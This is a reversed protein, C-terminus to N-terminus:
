PVRGKSEALYMEHTRRLNRARLCRAFGGDIHGQTAEFVDPVGSIVPYARVMSWRYQRPFDEVRLDSMACRRQQTPQAQSQAQADALEAQRAAALLRSRAEGMHVTGSGRLAEAIDVAAVVAYGAAKLADLAARAVQGSAIDGISRGTRRLAEDDIAERVIEILENAWDVGLEPLNQHHDVNM